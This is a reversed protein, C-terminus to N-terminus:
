VGFIQLTYRNQAALPSVQTVMHNQKSDNVVMSNYSPNFAKWGDSEEYLLIGGYNM